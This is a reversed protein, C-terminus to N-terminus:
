ATLRSLVEATNEASSGIDLRYNWGHVRCIHEAWRDIRWSGGETWIAVRLLMPVERGYRVVVLDINEVLASAPQRGKLPSWM